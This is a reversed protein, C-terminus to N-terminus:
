YYSKFYRVKGLDTNRQNDSLWFFFGYHSNRCILLRFRDSLKRWIACYVSGTNRIRIRSRINKFEQIRIRSLSRRSGGGMDSLKTVTKQTFNNGEKYVPAYKETGTPFFYNVIIHFKHSCCFTLFFLKGGEKKNNQIRSVLDPLWSGPFEDQFAVTYQACNILKRKATSCAVHTSWPAKPARCFIQSSRDSTRSESLRLRGRLKM